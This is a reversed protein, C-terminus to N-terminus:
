FKVVEWTEGKIGHQNNSELLHILPHPGVELGCLATIVSRCAMQCLSLTIVTVKFVLGSHGIVTSKYSDILNYLLIKSEVCLVSIGLDGIM